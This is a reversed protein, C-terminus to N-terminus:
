NPDKNKKSKTTLPSLLNRGQNKPNALRLPKTGQSRKRRPMDLEHLRLLLRRRRPIKFNQPQLNQQSPPRMNILYPDLPFQVKMVRMLPSSKKIRKQFEKNLSLWAYNNTNYVIFICLYFLSLLHNLSTNKESNPVETAKDRKAKKERPTAATSGSGRKRSQFIFCLYILSLFFDQQCFFPYLGLFDVQKTEKPHDYKEGDDVIEIKKKKSEKSALSVIAITQCLYTFQFM